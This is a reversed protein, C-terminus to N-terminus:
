GTVGTLQEDGRALVDLAEAALSRERREAACARDGRGGAARGTMAEVVAAVAVGVSRQV